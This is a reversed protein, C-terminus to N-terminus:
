YDFRLYCLSSVTVCIWLAVGQRGDRGGVFMCKEGGKEWGVKEREVESVCLFVVPVHKGLNKYIYVYTYQTYKKYICM